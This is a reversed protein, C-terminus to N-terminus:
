FNRPKANEQGIKGACIDLMDLALLVGYTFAGM